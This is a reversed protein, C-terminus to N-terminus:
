SSCFHEIYGHFSKARYSNNKIIKYLHTKTSIGHRKNLITRVDIEYKVTKRDICHFKLVHFKIISISYCVCFNNKCFYYQRFNTM